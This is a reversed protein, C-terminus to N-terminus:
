RLKRKQCIYFYKEGEVIGDLNFDTKIIFDFGIKNLLENVLEPSFVTQLVNDYQNADDGYFVFYHNLTNHNVDITWQYCVDDVIGEEIYGDLETLRDLSHMDFLFYGDDNLLQYVQLFFPKLDQTELYNLSDGFCAITNFKQVLCSLDRMDACITKFDQVYSLMNQDIDLGIVPKPFANLLDGQGCALELSPGLLNLQQIFDIYCDIGAQDFFLSRYYKSLM